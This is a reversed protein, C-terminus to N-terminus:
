VTQKYLAKDHSYSSYVVNQYLKQQAISSFLDFYYLDLSVPSISSENFYNSSYYVCFSNHLKKNYM